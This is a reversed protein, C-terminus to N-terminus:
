KEHLSHGEVDDEERRAMKHGEVDEQLDKENEPMHAGKRPIAGHAM